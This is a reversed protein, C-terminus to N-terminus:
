EKEKRWKFAEGFQQAQKNTKSHILDTVEILNKAYIKALGNVMERLEESQPHYHYFGHHDLRQTALGVESIRNLIEATQKESVFLRQAMMKSDWQIEPDDRLLLIAELQPVSDICTSIFRQINTPIASLSMFSHIFIASEDLFPM